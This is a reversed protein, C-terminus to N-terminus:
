RATESVRASPASVNGAKDVAQVAYVYAVGPPVTTRSARRRSRRRRSRSLADGAARRAARHLRCSGERREREWILSIAGEARCRGPCGQRRRRRSRTPSRSARRRRRTARSTVPRRDDRVTRVRTAATRRGVDIRKDAFRPKPSRRPETLKSRRHPTPRRRLRQLRHGARTNGLPTSPLVDAAPPPQVERPAAIAAWTVTVSPRTTPSRPRRRRRRRRCSRCTPARRCRARAARAHQRRRRRLHTVAAGAAARAVPAAGHMSPRRSTRAREAAEVPTLTAETLQEAARRGRGSRAGPRGAARGRRGARRRRRDRDPDRPAKM